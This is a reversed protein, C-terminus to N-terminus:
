RGGNQIRDAADACRACAPGGNPDFGDRHDYVVPEYIDEFDYGCLTVRQGDTLHQFAKSPPVFKMM